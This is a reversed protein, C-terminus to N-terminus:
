LCLAGMCVVHSLEAGGVSHVRGKWSLLSQGKDVGCSEVATHNTFGTSPIISTKRDRRCIARMRSITGWADSVHPILLSSHFSHPTILPSTAAIQLLNNNKVYSDTGRLAVLNLCALTPICMKNITSVYYLYSNTNLFYIRGIFCAM